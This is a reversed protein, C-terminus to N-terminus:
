STGDLQFGSMGALFVNSFPIRRAVKHVLLDLTDGGGVAKSDGAAASCVHPFVRVGFTGSQRKEIGLGTQGSSGLIM